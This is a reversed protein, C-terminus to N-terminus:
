RQSTATLALDSLAAVAARRGSVLAGQISSTDRHDGCVYLGDTLRVRRRLPHPAPMAPLAHPLAYAAALEWRSTSVEYLDHLRARVRRELETGKHEASAGLVTTAVLQWGPPAYGPVVVTHRVVTPQDSDVLLLPEASPLSDTVHYFTTTARWSPAPLGPLLHSATAGDTAVVVVPARVEGHQVVRVAGPRVSTVRAGCAVTGDPLRAALQDPLARIGRSPVSAGARLFSRWLLHFFRGSTTLMDEGYVGSLFPRLVTDIARESVGATRLEDHTSRDSRHKLRGPPGYADLASLRGLAATDRVSLLRNRLSPGIRYIRSGALVGIGRVFPRLALAEVNFERQVAPYAPCVTQFGRDLLLGDREDTRTRGGVADSAEFVRVTLGARSLRVAAALGALGAGVVIADLRHAM